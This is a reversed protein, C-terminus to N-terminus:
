WEFGVDGPLKGDRIVKVEAHPNEGVFERLFGESPHRFIPSEPM